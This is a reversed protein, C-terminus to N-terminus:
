PKPALDVPGNWQGGVAQILTVAATQRNVTNQIQSVRASYATAQAASVTTYDVTGAQYQNRTVAQAREAADAAQAYHDAEARYANVASLDSEVEAFASLVTQRYTAVAADYAARAGRVRASRAGWDLLTEAASAGLSWLSSGAGFLGSVAPSSTGLSATLSVTPFFAARQVGITANAAAVQREAAAIDPRRELIASPVVGPVDPVMAQWAAAPPLAFTGPNEGVLVAIATEYGSRQRVLDRRNAQANALQTRATDVDASSVTGAAFKNRTVALAREYASITTDLLAAQADIGRLAFYDVALTGQASLTANALEAASAQAQARAARATNTLSGWLDPTWSASGTVSFTNGTKSGSQLTGLRTEQRTADASVGASPLLAAQDVRAAALAQAYSARYYALNQNTIILRQELGSLTDDGFLTWWAGKAVADSPNAAVWGPDTRFAPTPTVSAPVRYAPAMSCAGLLPLFLAATITPRKMM